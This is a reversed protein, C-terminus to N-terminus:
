LQLRLLQTCAMQLLFHQHRLSTSSTEKEYCALRYTGIQHTFQKGKKQQQKQPKKDDVASSMFNINNEADMDDKGGTM